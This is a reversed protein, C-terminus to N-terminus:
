KRKCNAEYFRPKIDVNKRQEFSTDLKKSEKRLSEELNDDLQFSFLEEIVNDILKIDEKSLKNMELNLNLYDRYRKKGEDYNNIRLTHFQTELDDSFVIEGWGMFDQHFYKLSDGMYEILELLNEDENPELGNSIDEISEDKISELVDITSKLISYFCFDSILDNTDQEIIETKTVKDASKTILIKKFDKLLRTYNYSNEKDKKLLIKEREWTYLTNYSFFILFLFKLPRSEIYLDHTQKAKM